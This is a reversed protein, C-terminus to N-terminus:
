QPRGENKWTSMNDFVSKTIRTSKNSSGGYAHIGIAVRSGSQSSFRWTPSGSQGGATDLMYHLQRKDVQTIRGSNYWQTGFAKDGPYGSNNALLNRLASDSMRAYGFWGTREGLWQNQPLIIAGYDHTAKREQTWGKVSRMSRGTAAGFPRLRGNLGPIVEVSTAWGGARKSHVCHGATMVTGPAIFWGTGRARQGDPYSIILQCIMRWPVKGMSTIHARDDVGQVTEAFTAAEEGFEIEAATPLHMAGSPFPHPDTDGLGEVMSRLPDYDPVSEITGGGHTLVDHGEEIECDEDFCEGQVWVAQSNDASIRYEKGLADISQAIESSVPVDDENSM